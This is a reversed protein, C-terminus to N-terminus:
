KKKSGLSEVATNGGAAKAHKEARKEKISKSSKKTMGQRPSKDAMPVGQNSAQTAGDQWLVGSTWGRKVGVVVSAPLRGPTSSAWSAVRSTRSDPERAAAIRSPM